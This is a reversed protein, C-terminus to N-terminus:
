PSFYLTWVEHEDIPEEDHFYDSYGLEYYEQVIKRVTAQVSPGGIMGGDQAEARRFMEQYRGFQDTHRLRSPNLAMGGERYLWKEPVVSVWDEYRHARVITEAQAPTVDYKELIRKKVAREAEQNLRAIERELIKREKEAEHATKELERIRKKTDVAYIRSNIAAKQTEREKKLSEGVRKWAASIKAPIQRARRTAWGKKAARSRKRHLAEPSLSKKRTKKAM